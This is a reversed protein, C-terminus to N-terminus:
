LLLFKKKGDYLYTGEKDVGKCYFSTISVSVPNESKLLGLITILSKGIEEENKTMENNIRRM